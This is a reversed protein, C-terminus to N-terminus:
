ILAFVKNVREELEEKTGGNNVVFDCYKWMDINFSEKSEEKVRPNYIGIIYDFRENKIAEELEETDRLGDYIDSQQLVLEVLRDKQDKNYENIKKFWLERMNIGVESHRDEYCDQYDFYWSKGNFSPFIIEKAAVLSSDIYKYGFNKSLINCLTGKGHGGSGLILLKM